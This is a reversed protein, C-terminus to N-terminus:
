KRGAEAREIEQKLIPLSGPYSITIKGGMSQLYAAVAILEADTLSTPPENSPPMIDEQGKMVYKSPNVLAEFVHEEVTIGRQQAEKEMERWINAVAPSRMGAEAKMPHCVMCQGKGFVIEEGARILEEQSVGEEIKITKPPRSESQPLVYVGIYVFFLNLAIVVIAVKLIGAKV